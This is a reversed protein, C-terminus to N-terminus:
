AGLLTLLRGRAWTYGEQGGTAAFYRLARLGIRYHYCAIRQDYLAAWAARAYRARLDHEIECGVPWFSVWAVDYLYDGYGIRDWDIVGTIQGDAAFVNDYGYDGHLLWREEPCYEALELMRAYAQKWLDRDHFAGEVLAPWGEPFDHVDERAAGIYARWTPYEGRERRAWRGYGSTDQVELAHIRDLVDLAQPLLRRHEAPDLSWLHRGAVRESIAFALGGRDGIELVCPIPIGPAAIREWAYLDREFAARVHGFRIVYEKDQAAFAFAQATGGGDLPHLAVVDKFRSDLVARVEGPAVSPKITPMM